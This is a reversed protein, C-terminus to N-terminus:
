KADKKKLYEGLAAYGSLGGARPRPSPISAPPLSEIVVPDDSVLSALRRESSLKVIHTFGGVYRNGMLVLPFSLAGYRACLDDQAQRDEVHERRFAINAEVLLDEVQKCFMCGTRTYVIVERM